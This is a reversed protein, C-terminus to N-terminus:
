EKGTEGKKENPTNKKKWLKNVLGPIKDIVDGFGFDGSKIKEISVKGDTIIIFAVPEISAGGGTGTGGHKDKDSSSGGGGAFGISVKSIPIIVSEGAEIPKGIITDASAITKFEDLVTKLVDEIAM